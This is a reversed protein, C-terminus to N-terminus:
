TGRESAPAIYKRVKVGSPWLEPDLVDELSRSPVSLRFSKYRSDPHSICDLENVTIDYDNLHVKLDQTRTEPDVM